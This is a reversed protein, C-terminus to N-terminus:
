VPNSSAPLEEHGLLHAEDETQNGEDMRKPVELAKILKAWFLKQGFPNDSWEVYTKKELLARLTKSIEVNDLPKLIVLLLVDQGKTFLKQHAMNMEFKCWNSQIFHPSLILLTKRSDEISGIIQETIMAGLEFDREHLCLKIQHKDELTPQLIEDVWDKDHRNYSVFADWQYEQLIEQKRSNALINRAIFYHYRICWRKKYIVIVVGAIIVSLLIGSGAGVGIYFEKGLCALNMHMPNLKHFLVQNSHENLCLYKQFNIFVINDPASHVWQVFDKVGCTCLLLNQTLDIKLTTNGLRSAQSTLQDRMDASFSSIRNYSINIVSLNGLNRIDVNFVPLSNKSLNLIQLKYLDAFRTYPIDKALNSALNLEIMTSAGALFDGHTGSLDILNFSFDFVEIRPLNHGLDPSLSSIRNGSFNMVNLAELGVFSSGFTLAVDPYGRDRNWSFDLFELSNNPNLCTKERFFPGDVTEDYNNIKQFHLVRVNGILPFVICGGCDKKLVAKITPIKDCPIASSYQIINELISCFMEHNDDLYNLYDVCEKLLINCVSLKSLEFCKEHLQSLLQPAQSEEFRTRIGLMQLQQKEEMHILVDTGNDSASSKLNEGLGQESFDVEVLSPHLIVEIGFASTFIPAIMNNNVKLIKLNPAYRILGPIVARLANYSIDLEELKHALLPELLASINLVPGNCMHMFTQTNHLNLVRLHTPKRFGKFSTILSKYRLMRMASLNLTELHDFNAFLKPLPADFNWNINIHLEMLNQLPWFVRQQSINVMKIERNMVNPDFPSSLWLSKLSTLHSFNASGLDVEMELAEYRFFSTQTPVKKTINALSEGRCFVSFQNDM